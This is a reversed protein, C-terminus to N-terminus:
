YFAPTM